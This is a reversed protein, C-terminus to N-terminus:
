SQENLGDLKSQVQEAISHVHTVLDMGDIPRVARLMLYEQQTLAFQNPLLEHPPNADNLAVIKKNYVTAFYQAKM